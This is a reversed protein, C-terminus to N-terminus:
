ESTFRTLHELPTVPSTHKFFVISDLDLWLWDGTSRRYMTHDIKRDDNTKLHCASSWYTPTHLWRCHCCFRCLQLLKSCLIDELAGDYVEDRNLVRKEKIQPLRKGDGGLVQVVREASVRLDRLLLKQSLYFACNHLMCWDSVPPWQNLQTVYMLWVSSTVPEVRLLQVKM